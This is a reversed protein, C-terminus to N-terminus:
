KFQRMWDAIRQHQDATGNNKLRNALYSIVIVNGPVYGRSNNIRDLSYARPGGISFRTGFVPCFKPLPFIDALTLSFALGKRIARRKARRLLEAAPHKRYHEKIWVNMCPRCRSQCGDKTRRDPPFQDLTKRLFCLTCTRWRSMSDGDGERICSDCGHLAM